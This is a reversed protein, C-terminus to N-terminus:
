LRDLPSMTRELHSTRVQLYRTTTHINAHGLASQITRLDTGAELLHTAFAHRLLHCTLPRAIGAKKKAITIAREVSRKSIPRDPQEGPFLWLGPPRTERWYSELAELLRRPLLTMRDKQGKGGRVHIVGRARDIDGVKLSCVESLRLGCGYAVMSAVRYLPSPAAELFAQIEAPTAIDPQKIPVRPWPIKAVVEPRDVVHQYFFKLGAVHMRYNAPRLGREELLHLLFARVEEIGMEAPSRWAWRAFARVARVYCGITCASMNRLRCEAEMRDSLVSM